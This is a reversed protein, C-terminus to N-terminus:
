PKLRVGRSLLYWAIYYLILTFLIIAGFAFYPDVSSVGIFGYRVFDVIYFLPNCKSIFHWFGPLKGIDYFVGGLYILPTLIFTPFITTDDFKQSFIANILGGLSFLAGCFLFGFIVLPFNYMTSFGGLFYAAISVLIGVIFGRFIGGSIYGLVITHNNVPSVLLEEIAKSFRAGFFSSVVNGYSNQIVAMIILGPTIYQMYTIGNAMNGIHSGVVKGFILFYLVITIVSPLLTQAWIRFIRTCERNFITVYMIWNDRLNM